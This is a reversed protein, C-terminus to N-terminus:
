PLTALEAAFKNAVAAFGNETPHLENAWTQQYADNTLVNSLTGRLDVYRVHAFAPDGPILSVMTNFTNIVNQMMGTNVALNEFLKEDFGPKLWPGPLFLWGGLFGRGDPVPYDYGHILIPLTKKAMTQCLNTITSLAVRYATAIRQNIVADIMEANWGAIPSTANNILMGFEKGAIDDGGGSVLVAKPTVGKDVIKDLCRAFKDLQGGGAGDLQGGSYAMSEIPDGAHASSEINYGHDDELKTLVDHVPYDFWSDGAAVLYGATQITATVAPAISPAVASAISVRLTKAQPHAALAAARRARADVRRAFIQDAKKLGIEIAQTFSSQDAM